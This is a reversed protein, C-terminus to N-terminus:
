NPGKVAFVNVSSFQGTTASFLLRMFLGSPNINELWVTSTTTIAQSSGYSDWNTGDNSIQLIVAGGTLATPIISLTGTGKSSLTIRTGAQANAYSTAFAVSQNDVRIIYYNTASSIGGPLTATSTMQFENGTQFVNTGIIATSTTLDIATSQFSGTPPITAACAVSFSNAGSLDIAPGSYSTLFSLVSQSATNIVKYQPGQVAFVNSSQLTSGNTVISIRTYIGTPPALECSWTGNGTVTISSGINGWNTADNSGQFQLTASTSNPTFTNVAGLSGQDTMTVPIGAQANALSTAFQIANANVVIVYYDTALSLGAPLTGTTTLQGVTGTTLKHINITIFNSAVNVAPTVGGTFSFPSVIHQANSGTGTIACTAVATAAAVLNWATQVQTATSVGNQIRVSISRTVNNVTVVESGATGGTTYSIKYTSNGRAVSTYTIDQIVCHSLTGSNFNQAVVSMSSVTAQVSISSAGTTNISSGFSSGSFQTMAQTGTNLIKIVPM